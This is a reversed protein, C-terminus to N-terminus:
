VMVADNQSIALEPWLQEALSKYENQDIKIAIAKSNLLVTKYFSSNEREGRCSIVKWLNIDM